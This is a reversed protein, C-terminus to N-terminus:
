KSPAFAEQTRTRLTVQSEIQKTFQWRSNATRAFNSGFQLTTRPLKDFPCSFQPRPYLLSLPLETLLAQRIPSSGTQFPFGRDVHQRRCRRRYNSQKSCHVPPPVTGSTRGDVQNPIHCPLVEACIRDTLRATILYTPPAAFDGSAFDAEVSSKVITGRAVSGSSGSSSCIIRHLAFFPFTLQEVKDHLVERKQGV